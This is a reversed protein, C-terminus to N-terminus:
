RSLRPESPVEPEIPVPPEHPASPERFLFGRAPMDLRESMSRVPAQVAAPRRRRSGRGLFGFLKRLKFAM